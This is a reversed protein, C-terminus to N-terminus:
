NFPWNNKFYNYDSEYNGKGCLVPLHGSVELWNLIADGRSNIMKLTTRNGLWM